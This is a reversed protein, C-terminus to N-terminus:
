AARPTTWWWRRATRRRAWWRRPGRPRTRPLVSDSFDGNAGLATTAAGFVLALMIALGVVTTTARAAWAVKSAASKIM